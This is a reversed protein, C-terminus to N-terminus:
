ESRTTLVTKEWESQEEPLGVFWTRERGGSRLRDLHREVKDAWVEAERTRRDPDTVTSFFSAGLTVATAALGDCVALRTKPRNDTTAALIAESRTM